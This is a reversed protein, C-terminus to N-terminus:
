CLGKKELVIPETVKAQPINSICTRRRQEQMKKELMTTVENLYTKRFLKDSRLSCDGM